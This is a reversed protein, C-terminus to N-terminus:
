GTFFRKMEAFVREPESHIPTEFFFPPGCQAGSSTWAAVESDSLILSIEPDTPHPGRLHLLGSSDHYVRRGGSCEAIRFILGRKTLRPEHSFQIEETARETDVLCLRGEKLTVARWRNRRARFAIGDPLLAIADVVRQVNWQPLIPHAELDNLRPNNIQVLGTNLNVFAQWKPRPYAQAIILRQGDRSARVHNAFSLFDISPLPVRVVQNGDISSVIRGDVLLLWPGEVGERDFIYSVKVGRLSKPTIVEEFQITQGTWAAAYIRNEDRLFRGHVHQLGHARRGLKQGTLLSYADVHNATILLLVNGTRIVASPSQGYILDVVKLPGVSLPWSMLRAPRAGSGGKIIYITGDLIEMWRSLGRPLNSVLVRGGSKSNTFSVLRRDDLIGYTKGADDKQWIDLRGALPLLFPFPSVGFIAPLEPDREVAISRIRQEPANFVAALDLDARCIPNRRAFPVSHLEFQGARTVTALYHIQDAHADLLRRFDPDGLADHHTIVISQLIRNANGTAADVFARLSSGAHAQTTLAALHETLGTRSLLDVPVISSGNARWVRVEALRRDRAVIALGVATALVRPIGWLRLGSDLLLNLSGPPERMLPERRLYLAENLAVRVSLTLDDHALESLVLRDLPGRNTIDAVGGLPLQEREALRRPLRVAAMLDRAARAVVGHEREKSLEDILQRAREAPPLVLSSPTPLADLGTRMRLRLTEASHQKLGQGILHLHSLTSTGTSSEEILEEARLPGAMGRLIEQAEVTREKRVNEFIAQLLNARAQPGSRLEAPLAPIKKLQELREAFQSQARGRLAEIVVAAASQDLNFNLQSSKTATATQPPAPLKERCAALVLVVAGFPPLGHPALGELLLQIEAKFTITAGDHWVVVQGDEAWRWASDPEARLYQVARQRELSM